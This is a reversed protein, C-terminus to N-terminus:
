YTLLYPVPSKIEEEHIFVHLFLNDDKFGIELCIRKELNEASTFCGNKDSLENRIYDLFKGLELSIVKKESFTYIKEFVM